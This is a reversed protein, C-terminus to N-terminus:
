DDGGGTRGSAWAAEMIEGARLGHGEHGAAREGNRAHPPWTGRAGSGARSAAGNKGEGSSRRRFVKVAVHQYDLEMAAQKDADVRSPPRKSSRPEASPVPFPM